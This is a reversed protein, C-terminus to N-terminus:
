SDRDDQVLEMILSEDDDLKASITNFQPYAQFDEKTLTAKGGMKGVLAFIVTSQEQIRQEYMGFLEEINIEPVQEEM